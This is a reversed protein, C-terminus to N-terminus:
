RLPVSSFPIDQSTFDDGARMMFRITIASSDASIDRRSKETSIRFSYPRGPELLTWQNEVTNNFCRASKGVSGANLGFRGCFAFGQVAFDRADTEGRLTVTSSNDDVIMLRPEGTANVISFELLVQVNDVISAYDLSLDVGGFLTATAISTPAAAATGTTDQRRDDELAEIRDQLCALAANLAEPGAVLDEVRLPSVTCDSAQASVGTSASLFFLGAAVILITLKM